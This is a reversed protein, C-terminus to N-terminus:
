GKVLVSTGEIKAEYTSLAKTAPGQVVKGDAAFQSAHCPCAFSKRESKWTVLCGQHPCTPNVAVVGKPDLPNRIVLVPGASFQEVLIQQSKDLDAIAGVTQFGDSRNNGATSKGQSNNSQPSDSQSNASCAALAVPLSSAVWGVGVWSLFTRRDM